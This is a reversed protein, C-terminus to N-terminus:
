AASPIGAALLQLGSNGSAATSACAADDAARSFPHPTLQTLAACLRHDGPDMAATARDLDLRRELAITDTPQGCWAAYGDAECRRASSSTSAAPSSTTSPSPM